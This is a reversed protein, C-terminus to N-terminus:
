INFLLLSHSQLQLAAFHSMPFMYNSKTLFLCFHLNNLSFICKSLTLRWKGEIHTYASPIYRHVTSRNFISVFINLNLDTSISFLDRYLQPYSNIHIYRQPSSVTKLLKSAINKWRAKTFHMIFYHEYACHQKKVATVLSVSYQQQEMLAVQQCLTFKRRRWSTQQKQNTCIQKIYLKM